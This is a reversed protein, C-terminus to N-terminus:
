VVDYSKHKRGHWAYPGQNHQSSHTDSSQLRQVNWKQIFRLCWSDTRTKHTTQAAQVENMQAM